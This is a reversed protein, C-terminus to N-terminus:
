AKGDFRDNELTLAPLLLGAAATCLSTIIILPLLSHGSWHEYIFSGVQDSLQYSLNGACVLTAYAFGEAGDPCFKAAVTLVSVLSIMQAFGFFLSLAIASWHGFLLVYAGQSIVGLVISLYLMKNLTMRKELWGCFLGGCVSGFAMLASTFGTFQQSFDLTTPDTMYYYLPTQFGPSFDFLVLFVGSLLLARVKFADRIAKFSEKFGPLDIAHKTEPPSWRRCAFLVALPAIVMIAVAIHLSTAPLLHQSLWGGLLAAVTIGVYQWTWQIDVFEDGDKFKKSCLVMIAGYLTNSVATATSASVLAVLMLGVSTLGYLWLYLAVLLLNSIYIYSKHRSGLIPVFEAFASYLPTVMWPIALAGLYAAAEDSTWGLGTKLYYTLPQVLLGNDYDSLGSTFYGIVFFLVLARSREPRSDPATM